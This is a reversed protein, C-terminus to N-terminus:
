FFQGVAWLTIAGTGSGSALLTGKANFSLSTAPDPTTSGATPATKLTVLSKSTSVDWLQITGDASSTALVSSDPTFAVGFIVDNFTNLTTILHGDSVNWLRV